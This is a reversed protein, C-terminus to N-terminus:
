SDPDRRFRDAISAPMLLTLADPILEITAPLSGAVEGDVQVFVPEESRPTLDLKRVKRITVGPTRELARAVVGTFYRIYRFSDEGEFAVMEFYDDLLSVDRAIEIDGGYNRVRSVLTFSSSITEGELNVDFETFRRGLMVVSGLWYAIKGLWKKLEPDLDIVINADLGIGAMLLFYRPNRGTPTLRGASVRYDVLEGLSHAAQEASGRFGMETALVNATGLPL